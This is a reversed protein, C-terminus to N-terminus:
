LRLDKEIIYIFLKKFREIENLIANAKTAPDSTKNISIFFELLNKNLSSLKNFIQGVREIVSKKYFDNTHKMLAESLDLTGAHEPSGIKFVEKCFEKSFLQPSQSKIEIKKEKYMIGIQDIRYILREGYEKAGEGTM